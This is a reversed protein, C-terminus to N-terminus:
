KSEKEYPSITNISACDSCSRQPFPICAVGLIYHRNTRLRQKLKTSLLTELRGNQPLLLWALLSERENDSDNHTDDENDSDKDNDNDNYSDHDGDHDDCLLNQVSKSQDQVHALTEPQATFLACFM